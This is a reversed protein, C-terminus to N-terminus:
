YHLPTQRGDVLIYYSDFKKLFLTVTYGAYNITKKLDANNLTEIVQEHTIKFPTLYQDSTADQIIVDM